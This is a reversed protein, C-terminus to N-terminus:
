TNALTRSARPSTLYSGRSLGRAPPFRRSTPRSVREPGFPPFTLNTLRYRMGRSM